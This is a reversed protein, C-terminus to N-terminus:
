YDIGWVAISNMKTLLKEIPLDLPCIDPALFPNVVNKM